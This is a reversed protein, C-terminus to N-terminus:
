SFYCFCFYIFIYYGLHTKWLWRPKKYSIRIKNNNLLYNLILSLNLNLSFVIDISNMADRFDAIRTDVGNTAILVKSALAVISCIRLSIGVKSSEGKTNHSVTKPKLGKFSAAFDSIGLM